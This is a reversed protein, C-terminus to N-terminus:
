IDERKTLDNSLAQSAFLYMAGAVLVPVAAFSLSIRLSDQGYTASFFDSLIGAMLPGLTGGIIGLGAVIVSSALAKQSEAALLQATAFTAPMYLMTAFNNLGILGIALLYNNTMCAAWIIPASIIFSISTILLARPNSIAAIWGGAFLGLIGTVGNVLGLAFGVEGMTVGFSRILFAPAFSYIAYQGIGMTSVGAVLWLMTKSEFLRKFSALSLSPKLDRKSSRLDPVLFAVMIALLVGPLAVILLTLRWGFRDGLWGGGMLGIMTGIPLGLSFIAIGVARMRGAVFKSILSHSSPTCGAEGMAVGIRAGAFQLITQAQGSLATLGCWIGISSTLVWKPSWRDALTALPISVISYVLTFTLGNVLGMGTDSLALDRKIEEFLIFPVQRDVYNLINVALMLAVFGFWGRGIDNQKSHM